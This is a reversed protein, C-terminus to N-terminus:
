IRLLSGHSLGKLDFGCEGVTILSRHRLGHTSGKFQALAVLNVVGNAGASLYYHRADFCGITIVWNKTLKEAKQGVVDSTM